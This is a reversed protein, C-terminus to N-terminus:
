RSTESKEFHGTNKYVFWGPVPLKVQPFLQLRSFWSNGHTLRSLLYSRQRSHDWFKSMLDQTIWKILDAQTLADLSEPTLNLLEAQAEFNLAPDRTKLSAESQQWPRRVPRDKPTSDFRPNRQPRNVQDLSIAM